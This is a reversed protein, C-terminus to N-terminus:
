KQSNSNESIEYNKCILNTRKNPIESKNSNNIQKNKTEIMLDVPNENGNNNTFKQNPNSILDALTLKKPPENANKEQNKNLNEFIKNKSASVLNMIKPKSDIIKQKSDFNRSEKLENQTSKM